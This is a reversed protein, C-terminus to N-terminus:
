DLSVKTRRKLLPPLYLPFTRRFVEDNYIDTKTVTVGTVHRHLASRLQKNTCSLPYLLTQPPLLNLNIIISFILQM